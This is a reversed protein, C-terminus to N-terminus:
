NFIQGPNCYHPISHIIRSTSTFIDEHQLHDKDSHWYTTPASLCGVSNLYGQINCKYNKMVYYLALDHIATPCAKKALSLFACGRNSRVLHLFAAILNGIPGFPVGVDM